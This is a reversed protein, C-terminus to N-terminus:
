SQCIANVEALLQNDTFHQLQIAGCPCTSTCVGCGACVTEIVKAVKKGGRLEEEKIAQFPCTKVCKLCGVCANINVQAIAPDSELMDKSFLSLVKSAAASGQGVSAPIDKPGQCAGALYVGSTNTEVPRLKPHSEVYFGFTDYSIHLKEAMGAAGPASVVATALVVLDAEIEVQTGLLTDAGRVVMKKGKPYIRSVRGRIYKVGYDEQARRTFEDYGKGPSRIDMYFVYSQSDPVHDKTLIAQKAIYMCCFNSCYPVGLSKDRSGACSVFVVTKPEAQDSPRLIHGSTPGSANLIREYQIGTIVDPYRGAGYEPFKDLDFLGYGTSVVIAGIDETVFEDQMEYNIAGTPCIKACVGCKGKTFQRCFTPDIKAKKPIAQPFPINIARTPAVGFNFHDYANRTPCKEMCAGCGTCKTWDVYTAKKRIKVQYNGVYGKIEEIESYAYLKIKEHQAVDVMKPGLICISCDITPFTKDLRAMMGGISPSKEVLIVDLGGDACDLAAQMGAVGGGIVMVRKNVKFSSSYLPKDNMVKAVAMKVAEIAKNTNLEKNEGIWSIHERINAMEFYYRNLGAKEVTKRFTNEHMRPSCAAVVIRDLNEKKIAQKIEEQGPESCTYMYNTAYVVGPLKRMEAAVRAVDVTGAINNGCHCIFVGVRM